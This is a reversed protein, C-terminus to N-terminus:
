PLPNYAVFNYVFLKFMIFCLVTLGGILKINNKFFTFSNPQTGNNQNPSIPDISFNYPTINLEPSIHINRGSSIFINKDQAKNQNIQTYFNETVYLYKNRMGDNYPIYSITKVQPLYQFITFCEASLVALSSKHPHKNNPYSQPIHIEITEIDKLWCLFSLKKILEKKANDHTDNFWLMSAINHNELSLTKGKICITYNDKLCKALSIDYIALLPSTRDELNTCSSKHATYQYETMLLFRHIGYQKSLQDIIKLNYEKISNKVPPSGITLSINKACRKAPTSIEQIAIDSHIYLTFGPTNYNRNDQTTFFITDYPTKDNHTRKNIMGHVLLHYHNNQDALILPFYVTEKEWIDQYVFLRCSEKNHPSADDPVYYINKINVLEQFLWRKIFLSFLATSLRHIYDTNVPKIRIEIQTFLSKENKKNIFDVLQGIAKKNSENTNNSDIDIWHTCNPTIVLTKNKIFMYNKGKYVGKQVSCPTVDTSNKDDSFVNQIEMSLLKGYAQM